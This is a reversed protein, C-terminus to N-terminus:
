TVGKLDLDFRTIKLATASSHFRVVFAPGAASRISPSTSPVTNYVEIGISM